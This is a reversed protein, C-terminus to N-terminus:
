QTIIQHISLNDEAVRALYEEYTEGNYYVLHSAINDLTVTDVEPDASYYEANVADVLEIYAEIVTHISLGEFSSELSLIDAEDLITTLSYETKIFPKASRVGDADLGAVARDLIDFLESADGKMAMGDFRVAALNRDAVSSQGSLTDCLMRRADLRPSSELRLNQVKALSPVRLGAVSNIGTYTLNPLGLLRIDTMSGPLAIDNIPSTRAVDFSQLASDRADFKSLRPCGSLDAVRLGTRRIDLTELFPLNGFNAASMAVYGTPREVHNASGLLLRVVLLMISFDANGDSTGISVQSLDLESMRDAQYIYLLAGTQHSFKTFEYKQGAELYVSESVAATNDNGIGYYGTKAATFPIRADSGCAIRFSIYGSFFAGTQYYGDRIRWRQEIFAPLSTLGLGQLAYFYITDSTATYQVYKRIGDYSSVMKPWIALRKELFFYKAGEPSFPKMLRGDVVAEVSRMAAIVTRLDTKGGADDTIVEQVMRLVVWLISNWGAYPNAYGTADDTPKAPDCEPDGTCGGDNDKGNAGDADYVKNFYMRSPLMNPPVAEVDCNDAVGKADYYVGGIVSCGDELFFMPQMNKAQQDYLSNYDTAGYYVMHSRVNLFKYINPRWRDAYTSPHKDPDCSDCFRLMRYLEFPVKKGTAYAIALDDNDVMCEFYYTWLPVVDATVKGKDILKQVWSSIKGSGTQMMADMSDVGRWWDFEQYTLLEFGTVPNLVDGDVHWTNTGKGGTQRMSGTTEVWRGDRYRMFKYRNGCYESLLYCLATDVSSDALFRSLTGALSEDKLGYYETFAGDQYNLCGLNYGPTNMFGLATQEGKDEKWNGKAEFYVNQLTDSTSRFVAVPHNATSHNLELGELHIDGIDQTGDFFRQAPTMYDPGLARYTANMMDCVGCDNAGGADSYDVKITTVDVAMTSEGVRIKKEKFLEYTLLADANTYDPFLPTIESAKSLYIRVNKKCRKASTTGQRRIRCKTAKFSRWPRVPDYYYVTQEFNDSTSTGSDFKVFNEESDVLVVYPIGRAWLAAASPRMATTGEATQSALVNEADFEHIMAETDVLKVLYNKFAQAWEYHTQYAMMYYIYLDGNTGDMTINRANFLDGRGPTYGIHGILEGDMYLRIASYKVGAREVFVSAPEVTVGLTHQEGCSFAREERQQVGNRCYIGVKNGKIYFGAGSAPDYCEMLLASSDKINNTAFRCQFAMGASELASSAFPMHNVSGKVNEAIRLCNQGLYSAFGNSTYNAGSLSLKFDGDVISHDAETNSRSSFDFSYLAGEKLQADIVSGSVVLPIEYSTDGGMVGLPNVIKAYLKVSDGEAFGQIQKSVNFTHSNDCLLQSILTDNAKTNVVTSGGKPNYVAVDFSVSEYLRVNGGTYDDYRVAVLPNLVRPDVIMIASYVTNGKIGSNLSTGSIRVPYAGHSLGLAAPNFSVAKTFTDTVVSKHIQVWEGDILMDVVAEIGKDSQNNEFKFLDVTARTMDPTIMADERVHLVQVGAVNVTIDEATVSIFKNGTVGTEDTAILNFRRLGAQSIFPSFDVEFTPTDLDPSSPKNVTEKWVSLNTDRDILELSVIANDVENNGSMTVSRVAVRTSIKSNLSGYVASQEPKISVVTGSVSGGGTSALFTIPEMIHAGDANKFQIEVTGDMQRVEHTTPIAAFAGGTSFADKGGPRMDDKTEVESGGGFEKWAARNGFDTVKQVLQLTEWKSAAVRYTIVMGAKRYVVKTDRELKALADVASEFSYFDAASPEGCLDNINIVPETGASTGATDLWNSEDLFDGEGLSAGIYQYLKWSSATAAFTIQLGLKMHNKGFLVAIASKLDYYPNTTNNKPYEVTVNICNGESAGGIKVLATGDFRYLENDCRYITEADLYGPVTGRDADDVFMVCKESEVYFFERKATSLPLDEPTSVILIREIGVTEKFSEVEKDLVDLDYVDAKTGALEYLDEVQVQLHDGEDGPFATNATHGLALDSGITILESGSWRYTKNNSTCTYIKGTDPIQGADDHTGFSEKDAWDAYYKFLGLKLSVGGVEEAVWVDTFEYKAKEATALDAVSATSKKLPRLMDDWNTADPRIASLVALLFRDNDLDYVVMCGSDTSKSSSAAEQVTVGSVMSNFEVVDDVFGPLFRAPIQSNGDLPAIGGPQGILSKVANVAALANGAMSLAESANTRAISAASQAADAKTSAANAVNSASISATQANAAVEAAAKAKNLAEVSRNVAETITDGMGSMDISKMQVIFADLIAGLYSPSISDKAVLSKLTNVKIQLSSFDAM